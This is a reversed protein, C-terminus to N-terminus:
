LNISPKSHNSWSTISSRPQSIDSVVKIAIHTAFSRSNHLEHHEIYAIFREIKTDQALELVISLLNM